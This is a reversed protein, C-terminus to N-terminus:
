KSGLNKILADIREAKVEGIQAGITINEAINTQSVNDGGSNNQSFRNGDTPRSPKEEKKVMQSLFPETSDVGERVLLEPTEAGSIKSAKLQKCALDFAKKVSRDNAIEQYFTAAFVKAAKDLIPQNMGITYDFTARLRKAQEKSYCANLVVLRINDKLLELMEAFIAPDIPDANGADDELVASGDKQGHGSFHFIHPQHNSLIPRLNDLGVSWESVIEIRDRYKAERIQDVVHRLEQDIRLPQVDAPNAALFLIKIKDTM